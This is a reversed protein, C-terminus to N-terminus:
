TMYNSMERRLFKIHKKKRLNMYDQIWDEIISTFINHLYEMLLPEGNGDECANKIDEYCYKDLFECAGTKLEISLAAHADSDPDM